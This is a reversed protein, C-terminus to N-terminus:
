VIKPIFIIAGCILATIAMVLVAGAAVDKIYKARPNRDPSIMDVTKEIATNFLEAVWVLGTVIVLFGAELPSVKLWAALLIVIVTGALHLWANHETRFFAGIGEIAYRFSKRRDSWSFKLQKSMTLFQSVRM